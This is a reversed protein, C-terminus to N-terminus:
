FEELNIRFIFFSILALGLSFLSFENSLGFFIISVVFTFSYKFYCNIKKYNGQKTLLIDKIKHPFKGLRNVVEHNLM